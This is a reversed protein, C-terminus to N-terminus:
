GAQYPLSFPEGNVFSSSAASLSIVPISITFQAKQPRGSGNIKIYIHTQNGLPRGSKMYLDVVARPLTASVTVDRMTYLAHVGERKIQFM